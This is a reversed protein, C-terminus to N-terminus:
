HSLVDVLCELLEAQRVPKRLCAAAGLSAALEPENMVSCIIIPIPALRPDTKLAQLIEWGGTQSLLVDLIIVDPMTCAIQELLQPGERLGVLKYGHGALYRSFLAEVDPNDEILAITRENRSIPLTIELRWSTATGRQLITANQVKALAITAEPLRIDPEDDGLLRLSCVVDMRLANGEQLVDFTAKNVAGSRIMLSLVSVLLQAFLSPSAEVSIHRDPPRGLKVGNAQALPQLSAVVRQLENGADLLRQGATVRTIEQWLADDVAPLAQDEKLAYSSSLGLVLAEIGRQQERQRQRRSLGLERELEQPEKGLVYRHHLVLYPRWAPDDTSTQSPPRLNEIAELLVRRLNQAATMADQQLCGPIRQILPHSILYASDYLHALADRIESYFQDLPQM